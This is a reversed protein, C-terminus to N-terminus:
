DQRFLVHKLEEFNELVRGTGMAVCSLPEEAVFVPLGTADSLVKDLNKLLAGGGTMVIGRDVIDASLEPPASELVLKVASIIQNIPETLSEAIQVETLTIEKPIGHVLDRGKIEMSRPKADTVCAAGIENKVKEATSEGILLNHYRRIYNIIAEDMTDGGVRISRPYVVGGLSIVAVETTGGGIDVIMSGTPETVPLGAGIAAAMPEEILYVKSAGASEVADQIARREVPTSGSPVCVIVMPRAFFTRKNHVTNIFYKIMEEAGKFDAIVGDKLPRIAHIDAPTRGLMMKAQNGFAYPVMTGKENLLAVVSPENLVIGKGSVYVLTNATGLDIAMDSSFFGLLKDLM